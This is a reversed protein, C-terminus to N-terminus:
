ILTVRSKSFNSNSHLIIIISHFFFFSLSSTSVNIRKQHYPLGGAAPRARAPCVAELRGVSRALSRAVPDTPQYYGIASLLKSLSLLDTGNRVKVQHKTPPEFVGRSSNTTSYCRQENRKQLPPSSRITILLFTLGCSCEANFSTTTDRM